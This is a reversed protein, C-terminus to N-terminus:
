KQKKSTERVTTTPHRRVAAQTVFRGTIASRGNRANVRYTGDTLRQVSVRNTSKPM